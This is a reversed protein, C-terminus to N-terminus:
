ELLSIVVPITGLGEFAATIGDGSGYSMTGSWAKLNFFRPLVPTEVDMGRRGAGPRTLVFCVAQGCHSTVTARPTFIDKEAEKAYRM